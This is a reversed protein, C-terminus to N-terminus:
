GQSKNSDRSGRGEALRAVILVTIISALVVGTPVTIVSALLMKLGVIALIVALAVRFTRFRRVAAAVVFYLSRLGLLAFVTASFILFPDRTIAFIAPISDTAFAVDSLEICVLAVLLPTAAWRGGRAPDRTFFGMERATGAVGSGGPSAAPQQIPRSEVKQSGVREPAPAGAASAIPLIKALTRIVANQGNALAPEGQRPIRVAAVLLFAGLVYQVWGFREFLVVGLGIFAGRMLMAGLVGWFLVRHQYVSPIGLSAFIMAMVFVNDVSLAQEIAYGTLFTLSAQPGGRWALLGAFALTLAFWIATWRVAERVGIVRADRHWVGLDLALAILIFGVFAAWVWLSV